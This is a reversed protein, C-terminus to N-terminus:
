YLGRFKKLTQLPSSQIFTLHYLDSNPLFKVSVSVSFCLPIDNAWHWVARSHCLWFKFGHPRAGLGTSKVVSSWQREPARWRMKEVKASSILMYFMVNQPTKVGGGLKVTFHLLYHWVSKNKLVAGILTGKYSYHFWGNLPKRYYM